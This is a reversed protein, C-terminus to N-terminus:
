SMATAVPDLGGHPASLVPMFSVAGPNAHDPTFRYHTCCVNTTRLVMSPRWWSHLLLGVVARLRSALKATAHAISLWANSLNGAQCGLRSITIRSRTSCGISTGDYCGFWEGKVQAATGM